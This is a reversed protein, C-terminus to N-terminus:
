RAAAARWRRGAGADLRIGAAEAAEVQSWAQARWRPSRLRRRSRRAPGATRRWRRRRRRAPRSIRTGQRPVAVAVLVAAVVAQAAATTAAVAAVAPAVARVQAPAVLVLVPGPAAPGLGLAVKVRHAAPHRAAPVRRCTARRCVPGRRVRVLHRHVRSRAPQVPQASSFPNNGVRPTRAAPKPASPM